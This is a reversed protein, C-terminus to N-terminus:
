HVLAISFAPPIAKAIVLEVDFGTGDLSYEFRGVYNLVVSIAKGTWCISDVNHTFGELGKKRWM